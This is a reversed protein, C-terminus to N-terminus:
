LHVALYKTELYEEIGVHGGERGLGSAKVGGFPAAPDSVLGRNVGVMGTELSEAVRLARSVDRTYVYSVLGFETDNAMNVATDETDFSYIAAVPGFIEQRSLETTDPVDVLVTPQFFYGAGGLPKGGTLVRAGSAVADDVLQGVRALQTGDILPGVTSNPEFASGPVIREFRDALRTAFEGAVSRQVLFRNAAVCSEGANRMKALVAGDLVSELDADDFVIFPGNGGLELSSRLVRDAAQRLLLSGVRTSGTFSVKKLRADDMLIRSQAGADSTPVFNVVGAPLCLEHLVSILLAQTLPTQPAPKVICTCGAALAAGLKRTAMALPFNWPTILLAPGVPVKTTVIRYGGNPAPGYTGTLHAAQEAFWRLFEAGYAVEGRAEALPKGTELSIAAAFDATREVVHDFATRLLEARYRATTAGWRAQAEHAANLAALSDAAGADAVTAIVEGDAPNHVPSRAGSESERWGGNIYLEKPQAAVLALASTLDHDDSNTTPM